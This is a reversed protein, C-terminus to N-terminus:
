PQCATQIQRSENIKARMKTQVLACFVKFGQPTWGISAYHSFFIVLGAIQKEDTIIVDSQAICDDSIKDLNLQMM